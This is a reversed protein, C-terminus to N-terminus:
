LGRSCCQDQLADAIKEWINVARDQFHRHTWFLAKHTPNDSHWHMNQYGPLAHLDLIAYLNNRECVAVVSDLLRFGDEKLEFPRDDDEFHLYNIPVRVHNM